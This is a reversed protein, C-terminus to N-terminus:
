LQFDKFQTTCWASSSPADCGLPQDRENMAAVTAEGLKTDMKSGGTQNFKRFSAQSAGVGEPSSVTTRRCSQARVFGSTPSIGMGSSVTFVTVM